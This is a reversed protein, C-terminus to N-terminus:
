VDLIRDYAGKVKEYYDMLEKETRHASYLDKM